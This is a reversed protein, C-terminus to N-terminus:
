IMMKTLLLYRIQLNISLNAKQKILIMLKILLIGETQISFTSKLILNKIIYFKSEIDLNFLNFAYDRKNERLGKFLKNKYKSEKPKLTNLDNFDTFNDKMESIPLKDSFPQLSIKVRNSTQTPNKTKIIENYHNISPLDSDPKYEKTNKFDLNKHSKNVDFDSKLNIGNSNRKKLYYFKNNHLQNPFLSRSSPSNIRNDKGIENSYRDNIKMVQYKQNPSIQNNNYKNPSNLNNLAVEGNFRINNFYYNRTNPTMQSPSPSRMPSNPSELSYNPLTNTNPSYPRNFNSYNNFSIVKMPYNEEMLNIINKNIKLM